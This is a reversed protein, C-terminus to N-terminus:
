IELMNCMESLLQLQITASSMLLFFPDAYSEECFEMDVINEGKNTVFTDEHCVKCRFRIRHFWHPFVVAEVEGEEMGERTRTMVIDGYVLNVADEDVAPAAPAAPAPAPAPAPAAAPAAAKEASYATGTFLILGTTLILSLLTKSSMNLM